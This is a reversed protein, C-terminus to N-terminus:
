YSPINNFPMGQVNSKYISVTVQQSSLMATLDKKIKAPRTYDYIDAVAQIFIIYGKTTTAIHYLKNEKIEFEESQNILCNAEDAHDQPGLKIYVDIDSDDDITIAFNSIIISYIGNTKM